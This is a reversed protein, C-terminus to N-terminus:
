VDQIFEEGRVGGGPDGFGKFEEREPGDEDLKAEGRRGRGADIAASAGCRGRFPTPLPAPPSAAHIEAATVATVAWGHRCCALNRVIFSHRQQRRLMLYQNRTNRTPECLGGATFLKKALLRGCDEHTIKEEHPRPTTLDGHRM